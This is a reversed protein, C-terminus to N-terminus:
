IVILEGKKGIAKAYKMTWCGGSKVHTDTGCHYCLNFKMGHYIDPLKQLTVCVVVDSAQAILINRQKYGGEWTRRLPPFNETELGVAQAEDIAWEDIGGLHCAGSVVKTASYRELAESIAARAQEETQKTFKAAESGVIGLIM